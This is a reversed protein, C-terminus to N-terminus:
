WTINEVGELEERLEREYFAIRKEIDSRKRLTEERYRSLFYHITEVRVKISGTPKNEDIDKFTFFPTGSSEIIGEIVSSIPSDHGCKFSCIEVAV